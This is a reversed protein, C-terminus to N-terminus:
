RRPMNCDEVLQGHSRIRYFCIDKEKVDMDRLLYKMFEESHLGHDRKNERILHLIYEEVLPFRGLAWTAAHRTEGFFMRDNLGILQM